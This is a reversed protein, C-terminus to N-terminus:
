YQNYDFKLEPYINNDNNYLVRQTTLTGSHKNNKDNQSTPRIENPKKLIINQSKCFIYGMVSFLIISVLVCAGGAIYGYLGTKTTGGIVLFAIGAILFLVAIGLLVKACLDLNKIKKQDHKSIFKNHQYNLQNNYKNNSQNAPENAQYDQNARNTQNQQVYNNPAQQNLQNLQSLGLGQNEKNIQSPLFLMVEFKKLIRGM